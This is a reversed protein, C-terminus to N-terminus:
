FITRVRSLLAGIQCFEPLRWNGLFGNMKDCSLCALSYTMESQPSGDQRRWSQGETKYFDTMVVWPNDTETAIRRSSGFIIRWRQLLGDYLNDKMETVIRWSSEFIIRWRQLLRNHCGLSQGEDRYCHTMVIWVYDNMEKAIRWSLGFITKRRQLLGDHRGLSQEEDRCCDTM